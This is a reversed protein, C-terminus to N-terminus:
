RKRKKKKFGGFLARIGQQGTAVPWTREFYSGKLASLPKGAARRRMLLPLAPPMSTGGSPKPLSLSAATPAGLDSFQFQTSTAQALKQVQVQDQGAFQSTATGTTFIQRGSSRPSTKFSAPTVTKTAATQAEETGSILQQASKAAPRQRSIPTVIPRQMAGIIRGSSKGEVKASSGFGLVAGTTSSVPKQATAINVAARAAQDGASFQQTPTYVKPSVKVQTFGSPKTVINGTPANAKSGMVTKGISQFSSTKVKSGTQINSLGKETFSTKWVNGQGHSIIRQSEFKVGALQKEIGTTTKGAKNIAINSKAASGSVGKVVNGSQTFHSKIFQEGIVFVKAGKVEGAYLYDGKGIQVSAPKGHTTVAVGKTQGYITGVKTPPKIHLKAALGKEYVNIKTIDKTYTKDGKTVVKHKTGAVEASYTPKTIMQVGKAAAGVMLPAAMVFSRATGEASPNKISEGIQTGLAIGYVVKMGTGATAAAATGLAGGSAAMAGAVIGTKAATTIAAPHVIGAINESSKRGQLEYAYDILADHRKQEWNGGTLQTVAFDTVTGMGVVDRDFIYSARVVPDRIMKEAAQHREETQINYEQYPALAPSLREYRQPYEQALKKKYAESAQIDSQSTEYVKGEDAAQKMERFSVLGRDYAEEPTLVRVTNDSKEKRLQAEQEKIATLEQQTIVRSHKLGSQERTVESPKSDSPAAAQTQVVQAETQKRQAIAEQQKVWHKFVEPNEIIGSPAKFYVIARANSRPEAWVKNYPVHYEKLWAEVSRRTIKEAEKGRVQYVNQGDGESHIYIKM